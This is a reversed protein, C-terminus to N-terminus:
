SQRPPAPRKLRQYLAASLGAELSTYAAFVVFQQVFLYVLVVAPNARAAATLSMPDTVNIGLASGVLFPICSVLIFAPLLLMLRAGIIRLMSGKTWAWTEFTLIRNQDISAPAALYLRSTLTMWVAAYVLAVLLVAGPNQQAFETFIAMVRNEDNQAAQLAPAFAGLPGATLVFASVISLMLFVILLFFDIIAMASWVRMGDVANRQAFGSTLGLAGALLAAYVVAQAVWQLLQLPAGAQPVVFSVGACLTQVAAMVAAAILVFRWNHRVFRLAAGVSDYVAVTSAETM